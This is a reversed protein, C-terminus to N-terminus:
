MVIVIVFSVQWKGTRTTVEVKGSNIFYMADGKDGHRVVVHGKPFHRRRMGAFVNSFDSLTLAHPMEEEDDEKSAAVLDQWAGHDSEPVTDGKSLQKSIVSGLDNGTVFGKGESDFVEFARKILNASVGARSDKKSNQEINVSQSVLVSFIGAELQDRLDKFKMLKKDSNMM